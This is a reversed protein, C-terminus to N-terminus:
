HTQQVHQLRQRERERCKEAKAMGDVVTKMLNEYRLIEGTLWTIRREIRKWVSNRKGAKQFVEENTTRDVYSVHLMRKKASSNLSHGDRQIDERGITM